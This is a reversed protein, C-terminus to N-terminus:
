LFTHYFCPRGACQISHHHTVLVESALLVRCPDSGDFQWPSDLPLVTGTSWPFLSDWGPSGAAPSPSINCTATVESLQAMPVTVMEM